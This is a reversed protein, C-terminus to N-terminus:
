RRKRKSLIRRTDLLQKKTEELENEVEALHKKTEELENKVEALDNKANEITRGYLEAIAIPPLTALIPVQKREKFKIWRDSIREICREQLCTISEATPHAAIFLQLLSMACEISIEPMHGSDTLEDFMESSLDGQHLRCYEAVIISLRRRYWPMSKVFSSTLIAHFFEPDLLPLLPSNPGYACFNDICVRQSLSLIEEDHFIKASQVYRHVNTSKMDEEVFSMAKHLLLKIGFYQGLFRLSVAQVSTM